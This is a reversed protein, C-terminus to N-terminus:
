ESWYEDWKKLAEDLSLQGLLLAQFDTQFISGIWAPWKPSDFPYKVLPYKEPHSLMYDWAKYLGTSFYPDEKYTVSHIPLGGYNKNFWANVEPSSVYKIFEWAAEKNKSHSPIALSTFGFDQYTKGSPGVPLPLATFKDTDLVKAIFPAADPDQILFPTIGAVFANVQESFGWNIADKPATKALELYFEWGKKYGSSAFITKGDPSLYPNEVNLNEVFSTVVLEVFMLPFVKGRLDFGFQNNSPDLIKQCADLLDQWTKLNNLDIGYKEAIDTRAYLAKVFLNQPIVYPTNNVRKAIEWTVPTITKADEWNNIFPTLDIIWGNNVFQKLTIERVEVIDLPQKTMLMTSLKNEAQEYPPAITKIKINPHTAEFDKIMKEWLASREPSTLTQFFTLTVVESFVMSGFVLISVLLLIMLKKM